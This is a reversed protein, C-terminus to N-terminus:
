CATRENAPVPAFYSALCDDQLARALPQCGAGFLGARPLRDAFGTCSPAPAPPDPLDPRAAALAPSASAIMFLSSVALFSVRTLIM